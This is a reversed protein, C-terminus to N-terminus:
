KIKNKILDEDMSMRALMKRKHVCAPVCAHACMLLTTFYCDILELQAQTPLIVHSQIYLVDKTKYTTIRPPPLHTPRENTSSNNALMHKLRNDDEDNPWLCYFMKVSSMSLSEHWRSHLGIFAKGLLEVSVDLLM